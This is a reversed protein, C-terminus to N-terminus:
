QTYVDSNNNTLICSFNKKIKLIYFLNYINDAPIKNPPLNNIQLFTAFFSLCLYTHSMVFPLITGICLGGPHVVRKYAEAVMFM